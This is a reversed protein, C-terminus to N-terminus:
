EAQGSHRAVRLRDGVECFAAQIAMKSDAFRPHFEKSGEFSRPSCCSNFTFAEEPARTRGHGAGHGSPSVKYELSPMDIRTMCAIHVVRDLM